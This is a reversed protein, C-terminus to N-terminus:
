FMKIFCACINNATLLDTITHTCCYLVSELPENVNDQSLFCKQEAMCHYVSKYMWNLKSDTRKPKNNSEYVYMSFQYSDVDKALISFLCFMKFKTCLLKWQLELILNFISSNKLPISLM